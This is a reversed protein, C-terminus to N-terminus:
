RATPQHLRHLEKELAMIRRRQNIYPSLCLLAGVVLGIFLSCLVLFSVPVRWQHGLYYYVQVMTPNKMAFGVLALLCVIVGLSSFVTSISKLM